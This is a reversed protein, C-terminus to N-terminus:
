EAIRTHTAYVGSTGILALAVNAIMKESPFEDEPETFFFEGVEVKVYRSIQVTNYQLQNRAFTAQNWSRRAKGERVWRDMCAIRDQKTRAIGNADAHRQVMEAGRAMEAQRQREDMTVAATILGTEQLAM